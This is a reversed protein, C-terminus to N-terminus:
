TKQVIIQMLRLLVNLYNEMTIQSKKLNLLVIERQLSSQLLFRVMNGLRLFLVAFGCVLKNEYFLVWVNKNYSLIM